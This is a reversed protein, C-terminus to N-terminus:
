QIIIFPRLHGSTINLRPRSSSLTWSSLVRSHQYSVRFCHILLRKSPGRVGLAGAFWSAEEMKRTIKNLYIFTVCLQSFLKFKKVVKTKWLLHERLRFCQDAVLEGPKRASSPSRLVSTTMSRVNIWEM